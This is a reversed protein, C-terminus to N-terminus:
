LLSIEDNQLIGDSLFGMFDGHFWSSLPMQASYVARKRHPIIGGAGWSVISFRKPGKPWHWSRRPSPHIVSDGPSMHLTCLRTPPDCQWNTLSCLPPNETTTTVANSDLTWSPAIQLTQPIWIGKIIGIFQPALSSSLTEWGDWLNELFKGEPLKM